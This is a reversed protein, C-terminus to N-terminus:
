TSRMTTVTPNWRATSARSCSASGDMIRRAIEDIVEDDSMRSVQLRRHDSLVQRLTTVVGTRHFNRRLYAVADSFRHFRILGERTSRIEIRRDFDRFLLTM